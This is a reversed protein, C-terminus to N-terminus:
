QRPWFQIGFSELRRVEKTPPAPMIGPPGLASLVLQQQGYSVCGLSKLPVGAQGGLCLSGLSLPTVRAQGQREM